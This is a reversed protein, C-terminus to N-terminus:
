GSRETLNTDSVEDFDINNNRTFPDDNENDSKNSFLSEEEPDNECGKLRAPRLLSINDDDEDQSHAWEGNNNNNGIEITDGPAPAAAQETM